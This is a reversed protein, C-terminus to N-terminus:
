RVSRRNVRVKYMHLHHYGIKMASALLIWMCVIYPLSIHAFDFKVVEYSGSEGGVGGGNFGNETGESYLSALSENGGM